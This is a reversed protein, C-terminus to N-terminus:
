KVRLTKNMYETLDSDRFRMKGQEGIRSCTLRGAKVEKYLTDPHMKLLKAVEKVTYITEM